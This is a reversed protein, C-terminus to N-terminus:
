ALGRTDVYTRRSVDCFASAIRAGRSELDRLLAITRTADFRFSGRRSRSKLTYNSIRWPIASGCMGRNTLWLEINDLAMPNLPGDLSIFASCTDRNFRSNSDAPANGQENFVLFCASKYGNERTSTIFEWKQRRCSVSPFWLSSIFAPFLVSRYLAIRFIGRRIMVHVKKSKYNEKRSKKVIQNM